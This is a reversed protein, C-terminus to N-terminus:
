PARRGVVELGQLLNSPGAKVGSANILEMILWFDQAQALEAAEALPLVMHGAFCGYQEQQPMQATNRMVLLKEGDRSLGAVISAGHAQTWAVAELRVEAEALPADAVFHLRLRVRNPRGPAGTIYWSGPQWHLEAARDIDALHLLKPSTCDDCYLVRREATPSLRIIKQTPPKTRGTIHLEQVRVQGHAPAQMELKVWAEEGQWNEPVAGSLAFPQRPRSAELSAPSWHVLSTGAAVQVGAGQGQLEGRVCAKVAEMPLPARLHWYLCAWRQRPAAPLILQEAAGDWRLALLGEVGGYSLFSTDAFDYTISFRHDAGGCVELPRAPLYNASQLPLAGAPEAHARNLWAFAWRRCRVTLEDTERLWAHVNGWKPDVACFFVPVNFERCVQM